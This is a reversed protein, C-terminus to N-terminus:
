PLLAAKVSAFISACLMPMSTLLPENKAVIFSLMMSILGM